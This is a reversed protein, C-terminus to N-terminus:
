RAPWGAEELVQLAAQRLHSRNDWELEQVTTDALRICAVASASASAAV